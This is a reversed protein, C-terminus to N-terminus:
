FLRKRWKGEMKTDFISFRWRSIEQLLNYACSYLIVNVYKVYSDLNNTWLGLNFDMFGDFTSMDGFKEQFIEEVDYLSLDGYPHFTCNVTHLAFGTLKKNQDSSYTNKIVWYACTQYQLGARLTDLPYSDALSICVRNSYVGRKNYYLTQRM